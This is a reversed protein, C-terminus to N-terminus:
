PVLLGTCGWSVAKLSGDRITWLRLRADTSPGLALIGLLEGARAGALDLRSPRSAGSPHSHWSGLVRRGQVRALREARLQVLPDLRFRPQGAAATGRALNPSELVEDVRFHGSKLAGIWVGCAEEPRARMGWAILQAELGPALHAEM